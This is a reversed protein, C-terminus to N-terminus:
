FKGAEFKPKEDPEYFKKNFPLNKAMIMLGNESVVKTKRSGMVKSWDMTIRRRRRQYHYRQLIPM